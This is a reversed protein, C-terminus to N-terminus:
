GRDKTFKIANSLLNRLVQTIRITDGVVKMDKVYQSLNESSSLKAKEIDDDSNHDFELSYELHKAAAPLTFENKTREILQWIPVVSFELALTGMEVKDYNLLDNLVDVSSQANMLVEQGLELWDRAHAEDIVPVRTLPGNKSEIGLAAEIEELQLSLGM